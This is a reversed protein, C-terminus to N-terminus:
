FTDHEGAYTISVITIKLYTSRIFNFIVSIDIIGIIFGM